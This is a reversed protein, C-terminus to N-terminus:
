SGCSGGGINDTLGPVIGVQKRVAGAGSASSFAKGLISKADVETWSIRNKAQQYAIELYNQPFWYSNFALIAKYILNDDWNQAVMMEVLALAAMGHNCDPFATSNNCCPRYINEAITKVRAQQEVTLAILQHKSYHDMASGKALNWGGTSAFNATKGGQTMPGDDLVPTKNALGLAWLVDVWFQANKVNITVTDRDNDSIQNPFLKEFKEKDIVGLSVLKPGMGKWPIIITTGEDPLVQKRLLDIDINPKQAVNKSFVPGLTVGLVFAIIVLGITKFKSKM